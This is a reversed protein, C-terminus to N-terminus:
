LSDIFMFMGYFGIVLTLILSPIVCLTFVSMSICKDELYNLFLFFATVITIVILLGIIIGLM